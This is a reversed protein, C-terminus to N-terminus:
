TDDTRCLPRIGAMPQNVKFKFNVGPAPRTEHRDPKTLQLDQMTWTKTGETFKQTWSHPEVAGEAEVIHQLAFQIYYAFGQPVRIYLYRIHKRVTDTGTSKDLNIYVINQGREEVSRGTLQWELACLIQKAWHEESLFYDWSCGDVKGLAHQWWGPASKPLIRMLFSLFSGLRGIQRMLTPMEPTGDLDAMATRSPKTWQGITVNINRWLKEPSAEHVLRFGFHLPQREGPNDVSGTAEQLIQAAEDMTMEVASEYVDAYADEENFENHGEDGAVEPADVDSETDSEPVDDWEIQLPQTDPKGGQWVKSVEDLIENLARGEPLKETRTILHPPMVYIWFVQEAERNYNKFQNLVLQKSGPAWHGAVRKNKSYLTM